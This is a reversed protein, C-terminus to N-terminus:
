ALPKNLPDHDLLQSLDQPDPGLLQVDVAGQLAPALAVSQTASLPTAFAAQATHVGDLQDVGLATLTSLIAQVVPDGQSHGSLLDNLVANDMVLTAGEDSFMPETESTRQGQLANLLEALEDRTFPESGLDVTAHGSLQVQDVGIAAMDQLSLHLQPNQSQAQITVQAQADATLWGAEVLVAALADGVTLTEGHAAQVAAFGAASLAQVLDQGTASGPKLQEAAAVLASAGKYTDFFVDALNHAQGDATHYASLLGLLNGHDLTTGMRPNLDLQIIHHDALSSIEGADSLGNGNADQWLGLSSFDTDAGNIVGDGNSDLMALADFGNAALAGSPLATGVGFLESGDDVQQNGNLDRVLFADSTSIWGKLAVPTAPTLQFLHLAPQTSTLVGDDNLDLVLPSAGVFVPMLSFASADVGTMNQIAANTTLPSSLGPAYSLTVAANTAMTSALTLVVQNGAVSLASITLTASNALASFASISPAHSSDLIADYTLVIQSGMAQAWQLGPGTQNTTTGNTTGTSAPNSVTIKVEGEDWTGNQDTVTYHTSITKTQGAAMTNYAANSTDISFTKTTADFTLGPVTGTSVPHGEPGYLTVQGQANVIELGAPVLTYQSGSPIVLTGSSGFNQDLTGDAKYRQLAALQLGQADSVTTEVVVGGGSVSRIQSILMNPLTVSYHSDLAGSSTYRLVQVGLSAPDVFNASTGSSYAKLVYASDDGYVGRRVQISIFDGGILGTLMVKFTSDLAGSATYRNLSNAFPMDQVSELAYLAGSSTPTGVVFGM